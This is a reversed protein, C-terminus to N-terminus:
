ELLRKVEKRMGRAAMAKRFDNLIKAAPVPLGTTGFTGLTDIANMIGSSTGSANVSGPPSTIIDKTVDNITNLLEATKKDFILDLKGNKNLSTIIKNLAAPQIVAQGSEDSTIGRYAQDRIKEMVSGQLERKARAGRPGARDLLGLLHKVSDLPTGDGTIKDTVKELAVFRDTSGPKNAFVKEILDIDEFDRAYKARSARAQKYVDGGADKTADDILMRMDRGFSADPTGPSAVKNILKRIDEMQNLSIMGTKSPDNSLLQEEVTKLVPALKERTTPTQQGIFDTLQQYSVPERMEGAKEARKYLANTRTRERKALTALADSIVGGQEYPNNWVESGTGEIFREFNQRLEDQQQAMRDRIPGGVENNKALERARQQETFDRTRQFRALEIPVPLEAARQTRITEESTSMAGGGPRSAPAGSAPTTITPATPAAAGTVPAEPTITTASPMAMGAPAEPAAGLPIEPQGRMRRVQDVVRPLAASAVDEIVKGGAGFTTALAIPQANFEGGAAFETGEIAAQTAGSKLAAGTFTAARGAPTFAFIGAAARPVDSFRFGPKIGYDKGDQSRLIYNGKADQRVEVGPYNAQIIKVSEEPSTFMTGIGTRAGAVSLENLEPMTTWDATAEIEPTSRESGTASEVIGEIFGMDETVDEMPAIYPTFQLTRSTDKQLADISEPTLPSGVNAMSIANLKKILEETSLNPNGQWAAQLDKANKLDIEAVVRDGPLAATLGAVPAAREGVPEGGSEKLQRKLYDEARKVGIAFQEASQNPNLNAIASVFREQETPSNALGTVGAPNIKALRTLQDQIIIGKLIEISGELDARNQGLLSGIIPTESINGAQKGVSLFNDALKRLDKTASLGTYIQPLRNTDPAMAPKSPTQGGVFVLQNTDENIQYALNPDVERDIKEQTTADRFKAAPKEPKEAKAPRKYVPTVDPPTIEERPVGGQVVYIKDDSGLLRQGEQYQEAM